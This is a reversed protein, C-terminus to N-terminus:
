IEGRETNLSKRKWLFYIAPYILLELIFSSFVGGIMPAAIRKMVDAGTASSWMIPILGMLIAMVTMTKPRIRRVAGHVIAEKLEQITRLQNNKKAHDYAMDLYMLMFIGTEADLGLLAIMGVWVAISIQYDLLFLIWVAGILSFPVASFIIATKMWSQTNMYILIIILFLTLPIVLTLRERVRIMNEYQGSWALSYGQPLVLKQNLLKKAQRVYGGVDKTELDVYVYGALMANDSRIMAPGYVIKLDAIQNLPIQAGSKTTVLIKQIQNLDDRFANQYRVRIDYRARGDIATGVTEGGIAAALMMQAQAVSIGYRALAERKLVFDIFYGGAVREAFVSRTGPLPQLYNEIESGIKEIQKLDPGLVKIGVATKIGTSLMDIRNKIPMTWANVMGPFQMAANFRNILSEYSEHDPWFPKFVFHTFEPWRSYFRNIKPWQNESKLIITTEMMSLPAPDTATEARGAKGLVQEVEPFSKLIKDQAQLIKKADTLAIGPLTTPMYLVSGEHLPPMFEHGLKLYVPVTLLMLMLALAITQKPFDLIKRCVPEYIKFLQRSIPHDEEKYYKGVTVQTLFRSLFRPKFTWPEMRTFLMRVAPDLTLALFAAILMSFNKTFALPKFLKGEQDVLTFVPLFAVAIVLLSFFVSPAVEKISRLRVAHPDEKRDGQQWEELRKYANEVEVIAGDVLVGISIAIGSLSMINATVGMLYMPIFALLSALPITIIPVIASPVHWLFILIVFSVILMEEILKEKLTHIAKEILVSRDYVPVIEVGKPLGPELESIKEKVQKIVKLANEGQRIVVIGSVVDGQGNYDTIGRRLGPGFSVKALQKLLIPTNNKGLAVVANELDSLSKVYGRGRIMYERGSMELLRGGVELNSERVATLIQDLSIKYNLLAQPNINVQFEKQYGGLSAVEAVGPIAQLAYKLQFDQLTRLASLNNQGTQDILIYQFVWGVGSADPGLGVRAAAPLQNQIKSLSELVRTRAFNSEVGEEFIVYVYSVGFDSFGRVTKVKATGLMSTVIPYTIQDEIIDPSQEWTSYVIVQTDSLDPIADLAINKLAHGAFLLLGLTAAIVLFKNKVSFDIIHSTFM